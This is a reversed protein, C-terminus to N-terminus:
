WYGNTTEENDAWMPSILLPIRLTVTSTRRLPPLHAPRSQPSESNANIDQSRDAKHRALHSSLNLFPGSLEIDRTNAKNAQRKNLVATLIAAGVIGSVTITAGVVSAILIISM